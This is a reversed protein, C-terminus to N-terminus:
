DPARFRRVEEARGALQPFRRVAATAGRDLLVGTAAATVTGVVGWVWPRLEPTVPLSLLVGALTGTSGALVFGLVLLVILPLLPRGRQREADGVALRTEASEGM